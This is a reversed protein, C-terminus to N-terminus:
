LIRSRKCREASYSDELMAKLFDSFTRYKRRVKAYWRGDKEFAGAHKDRFRLVDKAARAPPGAREELESLTEVKVAFWSYAVRAKKDYEWGADLITFGRRKANALIYDHAKRLKTAVVDDKGDFPQQEVLFLRTRTAYPTTKSRREYEDTITQKTVPFITFFREDASTVGKKASKVEVSKEAAYAKAAATFRELMEASVAAAANREPQIPDVLLLPGQQKSKNIAFAPSKHHKELDIIVPPTWKTAASLLKDFSGHAILLLDIVHGSFGNLYSEAGYCKAAKCFQKALRIEDQLSPKATIKKLVYGVHLPSADTVNVAQGPATINLVPVVEFLVDSGEYNRTFQYYDRSGHVRVADKPVIKGLLDALEDSKTKYEADDFRAFVDVDADGELNTGKAVSGGVFFSVNLHRKKAEAELKQATNLAFPRFDVTPKILSLIKGKRSSAPPKATTGM